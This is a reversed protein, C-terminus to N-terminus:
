LGVKDCRQLAAGGLLVSIFLNVASFTESRSIEPHRTGWENADEAFSHSIEMGVLPSM